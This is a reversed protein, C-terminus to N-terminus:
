EINFAKLTVGKLADAWGQIATYLENDKNIEIGRDELKQCLNMWHCWEMITESDEQRSPDTDILSYAMADPGYERVGDWIDSM